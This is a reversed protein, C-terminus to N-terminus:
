NRAHTRGSLIVHIGHRAAPQLAAPLHPLCGCARCIAVSSFPASRPCGPLGVPLEVPVDDSMTGGVATTYTRRCELRNTLSM